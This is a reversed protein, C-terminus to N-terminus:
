PGNSSPSKPPQATQLPRSPGPTTIPHLTMGRNDVRKQQAELIQKLLAIQQEPAHDFHDKLLQYGLSFLSFFVGVYLARRAWKFDRLATKSSEEADKIAQLQSLQAVTVLNDIRLAIAKTIDLVEDGTSEIKAHHERMPQGFDPLPTAIERDLYGGDRRDLGEIAESAHKTLSFSSAADRIQQDRLKTERVYDEQATRAFKGIDTAERFREAQERRDREIEEIARQSDSQFHLMHDAITGFATLPDILRKLAESQRLSEELLTQTAGIKGFSRFQAMTRATQASTEEIQAVISRALESIPDEFPGPAGSLDLVASALARKDEQTLRAREAGALGQDDRKTDTGPRVSLEFFADTIESPASASLASGFREELNHAVGVTLEYVAVPGLGETVVTSGSTALFRSIDDRGLIKKEGDSMTIGMRTLTTQIGIM